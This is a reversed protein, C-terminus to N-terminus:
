LNNPLIHLYVTFRFGIAVDKAGQSFAKATVHVWTKEANDEHLKTGLIFYGM